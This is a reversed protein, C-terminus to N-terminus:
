RHKLSQKLSAFEETLESKSPDHDPFPYALSDRTSAKLGADHEAAPPLPVSLGTNLVGDAIRDM